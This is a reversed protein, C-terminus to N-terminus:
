SSTGHHPTRDTYAFSNVGFLPAPLPCEQSSFLYFGPIDGGPTDGGPTDGRPIDGRPTDGRDDEDVVPLAGDAPARGVPDPGPGARVIELEEGAVRLVKGATEGGDLLVCAELRHVQDKRVPLYEGALLGDGLDEETKLPPSPGGGQETERSGPDEGAGEVPPERCPPM